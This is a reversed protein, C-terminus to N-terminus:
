DRPLVLSQMEAIVIDSEQGHLLTQIASEVEPKKCIDERAQLVCTLIMSYALISEQSM